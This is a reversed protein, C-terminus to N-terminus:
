LSQVEALGRWVGSVDDSRRAATALAKGIRRDFLAFGVRGM